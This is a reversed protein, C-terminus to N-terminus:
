RLVEKGQLLAVGLQLSQQAIEREDDDAAEEIVQVLLRVFQGIVQNEPFEAPSLAALHAVSDDHIRLHYCGDALAAHLQEPDIYAQIAKMGSLTVTLISEPDALARLRALLDDETLGGVDVTESQVRLKGVTEPTIKTGADSLEVALVSGTNQQRRNTPEPAGCYHARVDGSTCDMLGHWDGLAVYDAQTQAIEEKTLPRAESEVYGPIQLNGHALAVFWRRADAVQKHAVQDVRPDSGLRRIGHLASRHTQETGPSGAIVLDLQPFDLYTPTEKLIHVNDPFTERAYVSRPTYPDHNGPLICVPISLDGLASKVHTVTRQSPRPSDFLDGAIVLLDFDSRAATEVIRDFAAQIHRRHTAGQEGLFAFSGDLHIDATHLIKLM